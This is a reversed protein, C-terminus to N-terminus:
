GAILMRGSGSVKFKPCADHVPCYSCGEDGAKPALRGAWIDQATKEISGWVERIAEPTVTVPMVRQDCMPQILGTMAPWDGKMVKIVIAYFILQPFTKRWYSNNATGKLDWIAHRRLSDRVLLDMEGILHIERLSGDLYHVQIPVEFRVAPQWEFPLCYVGLIEELRVVLTRCFERVEDKDTASKWRVIGDGTEKARTEAEAMLEDVHALMWGPEQVDLSLWRRMLLDVVNGHFFNRVDTVPSKHQRLLAGKAACEQHTRVRSWSLRM